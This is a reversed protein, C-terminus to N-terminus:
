NHRARQSGTPRPGVLEETWSIREALTSPHAAMEKELTDGLGPISGVDRIDGANDTLNKVM